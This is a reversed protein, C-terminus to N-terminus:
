TTTVCAGAPAAPGSGAPAPRRATRPRRDARAPRRHAADTVAIRPRDVLGGGGTRELLAGLAARQGATAAALATLADPAASMRAAPSQEWADQDARDALEAAVVARQARALARHLALDRRAPRRSRRM